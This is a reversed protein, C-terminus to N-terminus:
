YSQGSFGVTLRMKIGVDYSAKNPDIASYMLLSRGNEVTEVGKGKRTPVAPEIEHIEFLTQGIETTPVNASHCDMERLNITSEM